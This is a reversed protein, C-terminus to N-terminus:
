SKLDMNWNGRNAAVCLANVFQKNKWENQLSWKKKAHFFYLFHPWKWSKFICCYIYNHIQQSFALNLFRSTLGMESSNFKIAVKGRRLFHLFLNSWWREVDTLRTLIIKTYLSEYWCTKGLGRLVFLFYIFIQM